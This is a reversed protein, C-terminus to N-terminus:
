HLLIYHDAGYFTDLDLLMHMPVENHKAADDVVVVATPQPANNDDIIVPSIDTLAGLDESDSLEIIDDDGHCSTAIISDNDDNDNATANDNKAADITNNCTVVATDDDDKNDKIPETKICKVEALSKPSQNVLDDFLAQIENNCSHNSSTETVTATEVVQLENESDNTSDNSGNQSTNSSVSELQSSAISGMQSANSSTDSSISPLSLPKERKQACVKLYNPKELLFEDKLGNALTNYALFSIFEAVEASIAVPVSAYTPKVPTNDSLVYTCIDDIYQDQFEDGPKIVGSCTPGHHPKPPSFKQHILTLSYWIDLIIKTLVTVDRTHLLEVMQKFAASDTAITPMVEINTALVMLTYYYYISTAIQYFVNGSIPDECEVNLSWGDNRNAHTRFACRLIYYDNFYKCRVFWYCILKCSQDSFAKKPEVLETVPLPLEINTSLKYQVTEESRETIQSKNKVLWARLKGTVQLVKCSEIDMDVRTRIDVSKECACLPSCLIMPDHLNHRRKENPMYEDNNEDSDLAIRKITMEAVSDDDDGGGENDSPIFNDLIHQSNTDGVFHRQYIQQKYVYQYDDHDIKSFPVTSLENDSSVHLLQQSAYYTRYFVKTGSVNKLKHHDIRFDHELKFTASYEIENFPALATYLQEYRKPFSELKPLRKYGTCPIHHPLSLPIGYTKCHDYPNIDDNQLKVCGRYFPFNESQEYIAIAEASYDYSEESDSGIDEPDLHENFQPLGFCLRQSLLNRNAHDLFIRQVGNNDSCYQVSVHQLFDVGLEIRPLLQWATRLRKYKANLPLLVQINKFQVLNLKRRIIDDSTIRKIKLTRM